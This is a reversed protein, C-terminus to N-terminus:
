DDYGIQKLYYITVHMDKCEDEIISRIIRPTGKALGAGILGPLGLRHGKFEANIKRFCLRFADYDLPIGYPGPDGWRYQGYANVVWISGKGGQLAFLKFDIQGLKNINGELEPAELPFTNTQFNKVMEVAFGRQQTNFCNVCHAIVDVHRELAAEIVNGIEEKLM